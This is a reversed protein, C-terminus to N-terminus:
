TRGLFQRPDGTTGSSFLINIPEIPTAVHASPWHEREGAGALFDSWTRDQARLTVTLAGASSSPLCIIPHTTAEAVRSYLPLTKGSRVQGDYTFVARANALRIRNAIEPPAFSDAISVVVCGAWIIGLYIAVSEATM